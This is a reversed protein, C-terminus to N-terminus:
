GGKGQKVGRSLPVRLIEPHFKGLLFWFYPSGYPLFKIIKSIVLKEIICGDSRCVSPCVSPRVHAIAYLASLVYIHQRASFVHFVYFANDLNESKEVKFNTVSV